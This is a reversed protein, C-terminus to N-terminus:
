GLRGQTSRKQLISINRRVKTLLAMTSKSVAQTKGVDTDRDPEAGSPNGVMVAGDKSM